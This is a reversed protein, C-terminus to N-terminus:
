QEELKNKILQYLRDVEEKSTPMWEPFINSGEKFQGERAEFIVIEESLPVIMHYLNREFRWVRYDNLSIKFCQKIDGNEYFTVAVGKGEVLVQTEAFEAHKHPKGYVDRGQLFLMEQMGAKENEHFCYRFKTTKNSQANQKMIDIDHNCIKVTEGSIFQVEM